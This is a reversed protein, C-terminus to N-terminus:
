GPMAKARVKPIGKVLALAGGILLSLMFLGGLVIAPDPSSPRDGIAANGFPEAAFPVSSSAMMRLKEQENLVDVLALRQEANSVEKLRGDLYAIYDSSRGLMRERLELDITAQLRDLLYTAFEPDPHEFSLTLTNKKTDNSLSVNKSLYRQLRAGGPKSWNADPQGILAKISRVAAPVLGRPEEWSNTEDNWDRPFAGRLIREDAALKNATTRSHVGEEFLTFQSVAKSTPLSVGAMSALGGLSGLRGMLSGADNQTPTVMLEATWERQATQLYAIGATLAVIVSGILWWKGSWLALALDALTITSERDGGIDIWQEAQPNDAM